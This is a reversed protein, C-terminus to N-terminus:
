LGCEKEAGDTDTAAGMDEDNVNWIGECGKLLLLAVISVKFLPLVKVAVCLVTFVLVFVLTFAVAFLKLLWLM